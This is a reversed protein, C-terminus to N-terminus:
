TEGEGALLDPVSASAVDLVSLRRRPDMFNPGMVALERTTPHVRLVETGRARVAAVEADLVGTMQRRMVGEVFGGVGGVRAGDVSAMPAVVIVEDLGLEVVADVSATSAVGGDVYRDGGIQVPPYWGPIGWSARVADQIQASPAANSGFLTRHGTSLSTAAVWVAPHPVWRRDSVLDDVLADLFGPNTRGPPLLGALAPLVARERLGAISLRVQPFGVPLAPVPSPPATFFRRVSERAEPLGRQGAVMEAVSVGAGLMVAATAGASTGVIVEATRADWGLRQEVAMLAGVQWAGGVTGGCGLILGRRVM